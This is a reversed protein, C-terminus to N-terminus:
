IEEENNNTESYEDLLFPIHEDTYEKSIIPMTDVAGLVHEQLPTPDKPEEDDYQVKDSRLLANIKESVFLIKVSDLSSLETLNNFNLRTFLFFYYSIGAPLIYKFIEELLRKDYALDGIGVVITHDKVKHGYITTPKEAYLVLMDPLLNYAKIFTNLAYSVSLLSGKNRLIMPFGLLTTRLVDDNFNEKTFFGLKTKLLELINNRCFETNLSFCMSDIDNKLGNNICDYLRLLLQFDRSDEVYVEPVNNQLRFLNM